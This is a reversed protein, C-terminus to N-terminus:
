ITAANSSCTSRRGPTRSRTGSVSWVTTSVSRGASHFPDFKPEEDGEPCLEEHIKDKIEKFAKKPKVCYYSRGSDTGTVFCVAGIPAADLLASREAIREYAKERATEIKAPDKINSPPKWRKRAKEIVEKSAHCTEIDLTLHLIGDAVDDPLVPALIDDPTIVPM